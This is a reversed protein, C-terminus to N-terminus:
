IKNLQYEFRKSMLINILAYVMINCLMRLQRPCHGIILGMVIEAIFCLIVNLSLLNFVIYPRVNTWM